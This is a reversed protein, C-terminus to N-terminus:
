KGSLDTSHLLYGNWKTTATNPRVTGAWVRKHYMRHSYSQWSCLQMTYQRRDRHARDHFKCWEIYTEEHHKAIRPPSANCLAESVDNTCSSNKASSSSMLTTGLKENGVNLWLVIGQMPTLPCGIACWSNDQSSTKTSCVPKRGLMGSLLLM